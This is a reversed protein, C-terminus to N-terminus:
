LVADDGRADGGAQVDLVLVGVDLLVEFLLARQPGLGRDVVRSSKWHM